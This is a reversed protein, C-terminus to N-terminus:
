QMTSNLREVAGNLAKAMRGVEDHTEVNLSATLDGAAVRELATVAQGLPVSFSRAIVITLIIGLSLSLFSAGIVM